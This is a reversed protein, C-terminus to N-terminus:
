MQARERDTQRDTQRDTWRDAHRDTQRDGRETQRDTQKEVGGDTREEAFIAFAFLNLWCLLVNPIITTTLHPVRITWVLDTLLMACQCAGCM